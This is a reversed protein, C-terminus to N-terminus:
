FVSFETPRKARFSLHLFMAKGKEVRFELLGELLGLLGSNEYNSQFVCRISAFPEPIKWVYIVLPEPIKWVYIVGCM